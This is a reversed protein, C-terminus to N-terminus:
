KKPTECGHDRYRCCKPLEQYKASVATHSGADHGSKAIAEEIQEPSVKDPRYTVTIQQKHEDWESLKVGKIDAANEIRKKCEDCNGKVAITITKVSKDQAFGSFCFLIALCTMLITKMNNQNSTFSHNNILERGPFFCWEM